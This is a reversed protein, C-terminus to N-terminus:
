IGIPLTLKMEEIFILKDHFFYAYDFNAQLEKVDFSQGALSIKITKYITKENRNSIIDLTKM